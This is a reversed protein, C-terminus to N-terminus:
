LNSCSKARHSYVYERERHETQLFRIRVYVPVRDRRRPKGCCARFLFDIGTRSSQGVLGARRGILACSWYKIKIETIFRSRAGDDLNRSATALVVPSPIPGMATPLVRTCVYMRKRINGFHLPRSALSALSAPRANRSPGAYSPKLCSLLRVYYM